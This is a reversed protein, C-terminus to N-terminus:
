IIKLEVMSYKQKSITIITIKKKKGSMSQRNNILLLKYLLNVYRNGVVLSEMYYNQNKMM